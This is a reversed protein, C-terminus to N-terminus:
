PRRTEVLQEVLRTLREVKEELEKVRDILAEDMTGALTPDITNRTVNFQANGPQAAPAAEGYYHSRISRDIASATAVHVEPQLGTARRVAALAEANTPDFCALLLRGTQERVGLPMLGYQEALELPLLRIADPALTARDLDIAPLRLHRAIAAALTREDLFGLTLLTQGLRGGWKAQEMLAQELQEATIVKASVLLDGLRSLMRNTTASVDPHHSSGRDSAM